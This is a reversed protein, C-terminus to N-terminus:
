TYSNAEILATLITQTAVCVCSKFQQPEKIYFGVDSQCYRRRRSSCSSNYLISSELSILSATRNFFHTSKIVMSVLLRLTKEM